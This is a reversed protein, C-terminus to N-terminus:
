SSWIMQRRALYCTRLSGTATLGCSMGRPREAQRQERTELWMPVLQVGPRRIASYDYV